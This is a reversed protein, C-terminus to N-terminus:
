RFLKQAMTYLARRWTLFEHATGESVHSEANYGAAKLDEVAKTVRDPTEKSGCSIFIYDPKAKGDLEQPTYVGGSLVGYSGFTDPRALTVAHTGMGGMSLGAMARNKKDALTYFHSDIYPVLEDVLVTELAKMSKAIADRDGFKVDNTLGYTMVVIFEKALGDAILNDMIINAKGQVPWSTENEGWGHQLYLVPYRKAKGKVTKGYGAPTYVYAPRLQDGDYKSPFLVLQTNGHEINTREAYFAQDHAPVEVGSMWRAGGYYSNTGPDVVSAGDVSMTYYHFGEDEPTGTIGEWYGDEQKKLVTGSMGGGHGASCIVYKAEPAHIRFKVYGQSNVQPYLQRPQCTTSPKFDDKIAVNEEAADFETLVRVLNKPKYDKDFPLPYNNAGLWSDRDSLNWFTVCEVKKCNRLQRFLMSYQAEQLTKMDQSVTVGENRSFRLQGGMEQNVRIDLETVHIHDVIESYKDLAAKIDEESPGYINYHGQMGIGDVKIGADKMGKVLNYIRDRKVPDCENYDNYFLLAKPDAESAFQFAKHIFEESGVIKYFNSERLPQGWKSDSIAENFVDWCYVVDAYRKMVVDIHDKMRKYLVEKKVFKMGEYPNQMKPREGPKMQSFDPRQRPQKAKENLAAEQKKNYDYFMWEAMQSHWMLNHGRLKIGNKRCFDAIKDAREFNWVGPAPHMEGPKMDNEATISNFERKVLAIQAEDTVNRQNLAVGVMFYDKYADKLPKFVPAPRRGPQASASMIVMVACLITLSFRKM